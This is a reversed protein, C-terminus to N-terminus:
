IGLLHVTEIGNLMSVKISGETDKARCDAETACKANCNNSYCNHRHQLKRIHTLNSLHLFHVDAIISQNAVKIKIKPVIGVSQPM